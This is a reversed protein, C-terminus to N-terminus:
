DEDDEAPEVTGPVHTSLFVLRDEGKDELADKVAVLTDILERAPVRSAVEAIMRLIAAGDMNEDENINLKQFGFARFRDALVNGAVQRVQEETLAGSHRIM